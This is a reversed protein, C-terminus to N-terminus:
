ENNKAGLEELLLNAYRRKDDSAFERQVLRAAAAMVLAASELKFRAFAAQQESEIQKRGAETLAQAAAKGEAIIGKAEAEAKARAATIIAAAEADAAQLKDQYQELLKHAQTKEAEAQDISNQIRLAREAMFKTVPKFLIARLIFFLIAINIITIIFTVSFDLM